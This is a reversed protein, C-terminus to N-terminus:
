NHNGRVVLLGTNAAGYSSKMRLETGLLDFM